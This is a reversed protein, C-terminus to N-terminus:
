VHARGIELRVALLALTAFTDTLLALTVFRDAVLPVTVLKDALLAEIFLM